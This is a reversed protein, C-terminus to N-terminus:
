QRGSTHHMNQILMIRSHKPVYNMRMLQTNLHEDQVYNVFRFLRDSIPLERETM